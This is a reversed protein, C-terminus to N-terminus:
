AAAAPTTDSTPVKEVTKLTKVRVVTKDGKKQETGMAVVKVNQGIYDALKIAQAAHGGKGAKAVPLHLKAGAPTILVFVSRTTGAVQMQNQAVIGTLTLEKLKASLGAGGAKEAHTKVAHAPDALSMGNGDARATASGAMVGAVALVAVMNLYRNM